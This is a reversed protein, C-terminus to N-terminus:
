CTIASDHRNLPALTGISEIGYRMTWCRGYERTWDRHLADCRNRLMPVILTLVTNCFVDFISNHISGRYGTVECRGVVAARTIIHQQWRRWSMCSRVPWDAAVALVGKRKAFRVSRTKDSPPQQKRIGVPLLLLQAVVVSHNINPLCALPPALTTLAVYIFLEQATWVALLESRIAVETLKTRPQQSAKM